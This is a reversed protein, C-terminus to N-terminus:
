ELTELWGGRFGAQKLGRLIPPCQRTLRWIFESRFNEIMLANPGLNLGYFDKSYWGQSDTKGDVPFTPNLSCTFGYKARLRPYTRNFYAVTPLVIEPAFPLSAVAVWPSLTGDDPEPVGRALYNYFHREVGGVRCTVEGPGESATLGWAYKNYGVFGQPNEIAHRQQVYTARRSNEFYDLGRARMPEDQIGRLDIWLHSAQHIFLPAAYLFHYNYYTRWDYTRTWAAYTEPPVSWTPSGLALVHLFLSEDYGQWHYPIFGSEPYWGHGLTLDNRLVWTWEVRQYLADAVRRIEREAPADGSFYQAAVLAGMILYATDITSLECNRARRGTQMDLFHYYWGHYGTAEPEPGQPSAELFRLTTLTREVGTVRSILGREVALPYSALAFGVAAISAPAGAWTSDAVLGNTPNCVNLFYTLAGQQLFTLLQTDEPEM